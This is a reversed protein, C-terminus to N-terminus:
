RCQSYEAGDAVIIPYGNSNRKLVTQVHELGGAGESMFLEGNMVKWMGAAASDRQSAMSGGSGSSSGEGRSGTSYTGNANFRVRKSHSYGTTKNYTFHCWTSSLLLENSMGGADASPSLGLMLSAVLISLRTM